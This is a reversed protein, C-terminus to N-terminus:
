FFADIEDQDMDDVTTRWLRRETGQDRAGSMQAGIYTAERSVPLDFSPLRGKSDNMQYYHSHNASLPTEHFPERMHLSTEQHNPVHPQPMAPHFGHVQDYSADIGQHQIHEFMERHQFGPSELNSRNYFLPVSLNRHSLPPADVSPYPQPLGNSARWVQTNFPPLSNREFQRSGEFTEKSGFGYQAQSGATLQAPFTSRVPRSERQSGLRTPYQVPQPRLPRRGELGRYSPLVAGRDNYSRTMRESENQLQRIGEPPIISSQPSTSSRVNALKDLQSESDNPDHRFMRFPNDKKRKFARQQSRQQEVKARKWPASTRPSRTSAWTAVFSEREAPFKPEETGDGHEVSEAADGNLLSSTSRPNHSSNAFSGQTRNKLKQEVDGRGAAYHRTSPLRSETRVDGGEPLTAPQKPSPTM